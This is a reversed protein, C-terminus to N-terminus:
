LVTGQGRQGCQQRRQSRDDAAAQQHTRGAAAPVHGERPAQEAPGGEGAECEGRGDVVCCHGAERGDVVCCCGAERGDVVCCHGTERGDVVCCCGAEREGRGDVVCCPCTTACRYFPPVEYM